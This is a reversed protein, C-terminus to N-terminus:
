DLSLCYTVGLSLRFQVVDPKDTLGQNNVQFSSFTGAAWLAGLSVNVKPTVFAQVGGGFSVSGGGLSYKYLDGNFLVPNITLGIHTYGAELFPRFRQTTGSFSWRLGLGINQMSFTDWSLKQRYSYGDYRAFIMLRQNIGYGVQVGGGLGLPELDDLNTFYDSSWSSTGGLLTFQLGEMNSRLSLTRQAFSSITLLSCLAVLFFSRHM